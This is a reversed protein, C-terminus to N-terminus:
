KRSETESFIICFKEAIWFFMAAAQAFDPLLVLWTCNSAATLAWGISFILIGTLFVLALHKKNIGSVVVMGLWISLIILASGFDPQLFVLGAPVIAYVASILIHKIKAIEIHRRSFYKALILVLLLKIPDSPDVSFGSFRLWHAAGRVKTGFIILFALSILSLFLLGLLLEGRKLFRWDIFSFAFFIAVGLFIWILQHTFFYDGAEGPFSGSGDPGVPQALGKMSILGAMLLPILSFFLVWDINAVHRKIAFLM